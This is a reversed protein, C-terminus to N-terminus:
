EADAELQELKDALTEALESAEEVIGAADPLPFVAVAIQDQELGEAWRELFVELTISQPVYSALEDKVWDQAYSSHPWLPLCVDGESELLLLGKEDKLTWLQQHQAVKSIFHDYRYDANLQLAANRETDSLEYSMLAGHNPQLLPVAPRAPASSPYSGMKHPAQGLTRHNM